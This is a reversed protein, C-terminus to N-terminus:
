LLGSVAELDASLTPQRRDLTREVKGVDLCTYTPRDAPRDLDARRGSEILSSDADVRECIRTGFEHPTVCDRAAVHFLGSEGADALDLITAAAAGARTPTVSQNTFLPTPEGAALRDRVWAPFGTLANTGRHIGWVFSLRVQLNDPHANRVAHEGELKSEGYVQIPNPSASEEYPETALGDFVYDTSVHVIDIGCDHCVEAITGPARGNTAVAQVPREECEDVDTIAACNVVVDPDVAALLDRVADTDRIDLQRMPAEFGPATSHYTGSVTEARTLATAMVNSGLLGGTGLVVVNM